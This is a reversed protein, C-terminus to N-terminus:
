WQMRRRVVGNPKGPYVHLRLLLSLNFGSLWVFKIIVTTSAVTPSLFLSFANTWVEYKFYWKNEFNQRVGGNAPPMLNKYFVAFWSLFFFFIGFVWRLADNSIRSLIQAYLSFQDSWNLLPSDITWYAASLHCNIPFLQENWLPIKILKNAKRIGNNGELSDNDEAIWNFKEIKYNSIKGFLFSWLPM